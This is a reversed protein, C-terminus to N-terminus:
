KGIGPQGTIVISPPRSDFKENDPDTFYDTCEDYLLVYDKRVWIRSVNLGIDLSFAFNAAIVPAEDDMQYAGSATPTELWRRKEERIDEGWFNALLISLTEDAELKLWHKKPQGDRFVHTYSPLDPNM